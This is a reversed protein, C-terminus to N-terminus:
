HTPSRNRGGTGPIELAAVFLPGTFSAALTNGLTLTLYVRQIKRAADNM